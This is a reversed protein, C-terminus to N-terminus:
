GEGWAGAGDRTAPVGAAAGGMEEFFYDELTRRVPQVGLVRGGAAEIATVVRGLSHEEVELRLRDGVPAVRGGAELGPAGGSVGSAFVELHTVDLRLLEGLPGVKVLRGARLVAVRDCLTEADSLIHTSFLVTKGAKRLDLILNRVLRRGIPDLGSMPEDLFLLEPDNVLAQALGIRQLMGKSFRRMPLDASRELGVLALLERSRERRRERGLGFLRGVYDLYEAATLYDYLYPNEPLYGARMRWARSALPEGLVRVEGRDPRLLGTILKLTTTKGSGNPGIYGLIEGRLLTLDLDQLAPRRGQIIHGTRYSKSLGRTVLVAERAAESL